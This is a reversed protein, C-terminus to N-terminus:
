SNKSLDINKLLNLHELIFNYAEEEDDIWNNESIANMILDKNIIIKPKIKNVVDEGLLDILLELITDPFSINDDDVEKVISLMLQILLKTIDNDSAIDITLSLLNEIM